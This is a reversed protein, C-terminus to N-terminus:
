PLEITRDPSDADSGYVLLVSSGAAPGYARIDAEMAAYLSDADPGYAFLDAGGEGFGDGDFTGAAARDISLTLADELAYIRQREEDTGFGNGALVLHVTVSQDDDAM